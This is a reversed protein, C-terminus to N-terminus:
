DLEIRKGCRHEDQPMGGWIARATFFDILRPRM